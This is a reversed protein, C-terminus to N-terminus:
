REVFIGHLGFPVHHPLVARGLEKMTTGDLILLFSTKTRGDFVFSLVCGDDEGTGGPRAVFVPEGPFAQEAQWATSTGRTVDIKLIRTVFDGGTEKPMGLGYAYRYKKGAVNRNIRPLDFTEDGCIVESAVTGSRPDLTFRQLHASSKRGLGFKLLRDFFFETMISADPYASLDIIIKGGEEFANVTHFVFFAGTSLTTVTGDNRSVIHFKTGNGPRWEYCEALSIGRLQGAILRSLELELPMEIFIFYGPTLAFSHFYTHKKAPITAIVERKDAAGPAIRYVSVDGHPGFRSLANFIEGTVPDVSSHAASGMLRNGFKDTFHIDGYTKLTEPDFAIMNSFDSLAVYKGGIIGLAVNTNDVVAPHVLNKLRKLISGSYWAATGWENGAIRGLKTDNKYEESELIRSRYAVAGNQFSFRHLMAYGDFFHHMHDPGQEFIAPGNRFLEGSLWGPVTGTVPVDSLDFERTQSKFLSADVLIGGNM